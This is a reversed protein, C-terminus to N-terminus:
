GEKVIVIEVNNFYWNLAFVKLEDLGTPMEEEDVEEMFEKGEHGIRYIDVWPFREDKEFSIGDIEVVDITSTNVNMSSDTTKIKKNM